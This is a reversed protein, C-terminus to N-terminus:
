HCKRKRTMIDGGFCYDKCYNKSNLGTKFHRHRHHNLVRQSLMIHLLPRSLQGLFSREQVYLGVSMLQNVSQSLEFNQTGSSVFDDTMEYVYVESLREAQCHLFEASRVLIFCRLFSLTVFIYM